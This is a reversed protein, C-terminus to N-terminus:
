FPCDGCAISPTERAVEELEKKDDRYE